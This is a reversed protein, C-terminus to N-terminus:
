GFSAAGTVVDTSVGVFVGGLLAKGVGLVLAERSRTILFLRAANPTVLRLVRQQRGALAFALLGRRLARSAM